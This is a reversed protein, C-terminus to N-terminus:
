ASLDEIIMELESCIYDMTLTQPKHFDDNPAPCFADLADFVIGPKDTAWYGTCGLEIYRLVQDCHMCVVAFNQNLPQIM